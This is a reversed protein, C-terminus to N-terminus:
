RSVSVSFDNQKMARLEPGCGKWSVIILTLCWNSKLVGANSKLSMELVSLKALGDETESFTFM